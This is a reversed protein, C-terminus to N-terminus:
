SPTSVTNVGFPIVKAVQKRTDAYLNRLEDDEVLLYREFAKNSKTGMARKIAEPSHKKRLAVATSHRTGPYLSVGEIGLQDCARNWWRQIHDPGFKDGPKVGGSRNAMYTPREHRFLYMNPFGRPLGKLLEVDEELLLIYKPTMEKPDPILIRRNEFEIHKEKINRIEAPRTNIYTASFLCAIYIRPNINWTLERVKELIAHRQDVSAIKRPNIKYRVDPYEPVQTPLIVRRKVLRNFVMRITDRIHKIYYSSKGQKQLAKLLDEIDAYTIEKINKGGWAEVSFRLRQEYKKVGKCDEKAALFEEVVNEWGLPNDAKYDRADFSGEDVKFRLGNLFREAPTLHRHPEETHEWLKFNKNIGGFKVRWGRHEKRGDKDKGWRKYIGGKM